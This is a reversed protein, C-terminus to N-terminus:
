PKPTTEKIYNDRLQEFINLALHNRHNEVDKFNNELEFETCLYKLYKEIKFVKPTNLKLIDSSTSAKVDFTQDLFDNHVSKPYIYVRFYYEKQGNPLTKIVFRPKYVIPSLMREIKEDIHTKSIKANNYESGKWDSETALGLLDRILFHNDSQSKKSYEKLIDPSDYRRNQISLANSFFFNKITRKDWQIDVDKYYSFLASKIYIGLHPYNVGSRIIKHFLDIAEFLTKFHSKTALHINELRNVYVDFYFQTPIFVTRIFFSGFGKTQRTGFNHSAWFASIDAELCKYLTSDFTSICGIIEKKAFVFGKSNKANEEGMNGFYCSFKEDQSIEQKWYDHDRFDIKYNLSESTSQKGIMWENRRAIELGSEYNGGGLRQLIFRDLKPKVETARLTAGEQDHQFHILPTHQRLTFELKNM